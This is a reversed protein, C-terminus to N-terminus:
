SEWWDRSSKRQSAGAQVESLMSMYPLADELGIIGDDTKIGPILFDVLALLCEGYDEPELMDKIQQAIEQLPELHKQTNSVTM